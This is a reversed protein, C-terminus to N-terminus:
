SDGCLDASLIRLLCQLPLSSAKIKTARKVLREEHSGSGYYRAFTRTGKRLSVGGSEGGVQGMWIFSGEAFGIFKAAIGHRPTRAKNFEGEDMLFSEGSQQTLTASAGGLVAQDRERGFKQSFDQGRVIHGLTAKLIGNGSQASHVLHEFLLNLSDSVGNVVLGALNKDGDM